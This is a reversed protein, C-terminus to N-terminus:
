YVGSAPSFVCLVLWLWRAECGPLCLGRCVSSRSIERRSGRGRKWRVAPWRACLFHVTCCCGHLCLQVAVHSALILPECWTSRWWECCARLVASPLMMALLASCSLGVSSLQRAPQERPQVALLQRCWRVAEETSSRSLSFLWPAMLAGAASSAAAM